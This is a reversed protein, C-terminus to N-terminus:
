IHILSLGDYRATPPLGAQSDRKLTEGAQQYLERGTKQLAQSLEDLERTTSYTLSSEILSTALWVTAALPALTAALFLLILRDRLRNM